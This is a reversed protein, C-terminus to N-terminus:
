KLKLNKLKKTKGEEFLGHLGDMRKKRKENMWIKKREKKREKKRRNKWMKETM